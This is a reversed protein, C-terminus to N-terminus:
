VLFVVMESEELDVCGKLDCAVDFFFVDIIDIEIALLARKM